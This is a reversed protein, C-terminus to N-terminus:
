RVHVGPGADGKFLVRYLGTKPVGARYRGGRGATTSDVTVWRGGTRRQICCARVRRAPVVHGALGGVTPVRSVIPM